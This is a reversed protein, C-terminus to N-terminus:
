ADVWGDGVKLRHRIDNSVALTQEVFCGKKAADILRLLDETSADSDIDLDISFAVPHSVYPGRGEMEARWQCRNFARVGRIDIRMRRAFAKVQVMLCTVLAAAFYALPPPASGDGGHPFKGEDTAIEFTGGGEGLLRVTTENRFRGVTHGEVEMVVEHSLKRPAAPTQQESM